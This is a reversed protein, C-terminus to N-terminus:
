ILLLLINVAFTFVNHVIQYFMQKNCLSHIAIRWSKILRGEFISTVAFGYMRLVEVHSLLPRHYISDNTPSWIMMDTKGRGFLFTDIGLAILITNSVATELHALKVWKM